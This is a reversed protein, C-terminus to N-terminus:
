MFLINVNGIVFLSFLLFPLDCKGHGLVISKWHMDNVVQLPFQRVFFL